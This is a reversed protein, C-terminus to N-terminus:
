DDPLSAFGDVWRTFLPKGRGSFLAIAIMMWLWIGIAVHEAGATIIMLAVAVILMAVVTSGLRRIGSGGLAFSRPGRSDFWPATTFLPRGQEDEASLCAALAIRHLWDRGPPSM